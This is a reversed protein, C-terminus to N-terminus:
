AVSQEAPEVPAESPQAEQQDSGANVDADQM